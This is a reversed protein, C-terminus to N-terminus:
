NDSKGDTAPLYPSVFDPKETDFLYHSFWEDLHTIVGRLTNPRRPSHPMGKYIIFSSEVGNDILAQRFEYANAIPVRPDKEGHQILVPTEAQKIYTIPSTYNYVGDDESPTKGFYEVTFPTIDTNYYYTKWNSIGAGMHAATCVNSYTSLMASIHGGQSWGLCGIKTSDVIGLAELHKIGALIDTAPGVGLNRLNLSQFAEGYGSSGRYNTQLVIAENGAWTDLPYFRGFRSLTPRDVAKPGGHTVVYLPYQKSPRFNKPKILIGEIETGDDALWSIVERTAIKFNKIQESSNTVKEAPGSNQIYIESLETASDGKFALTKGNDSVSYSSSIIDKPNEIKKIEGSKSNLNFLFSNTRQSAGFFLGKDTWKIPNVSEDFSQTLAKSTGGGKSVVYLTSKYPFGKSNTYAIQKSNPSWIPGSNIGPQSAIKKINKSKIKYTYISWTLINALGPSTGGTFAITEGKPSLSYGFISFEYGSTLTEPRSVLTSEPKTKIRFLHQFTGEERFVEYDGLYESREKKEQEHDETALYYIYKGNPSFSLNSIGIHKTNLLKAEGGSVNM